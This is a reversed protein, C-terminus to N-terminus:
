RREYFPVIEDLSAFFLLGSALNFALTAAMGAFRAPGKPRVKGTAVVAVGQLLFFASQYGQVRGAGIDFAYEHLLASVAFTALAIRLPHRAGGMPKFVDERFFQQAPRNYRRWFDAPTKAAFPNEMFDRGRGGVLRWLASAMTLGPVLMLFFALAKASHEVAFPRGRWEVGFALVLLSAGLMAEAGGLGFRILDARRGPRPESGLKRYVVSFPNVLFVVFAGFGPREGPRSGHHLDFLKVAEGVALIAVLLRAPRWEGGILLPATLIALTVPGLVILRRGRSLRLAPFFGCSAALIVAIALVIM